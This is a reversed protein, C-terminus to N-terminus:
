LMGRSLPEVTRVANWAIDCWLTTTRSSNGERVKGPIMEITKSKCRKDWTAWANGSDEQLDPETERQAYYADRFPFIIADACEEWLGSDRLDGIQPRKNDRRETERSLQILALIPINLDDALEQVGIAIETQDTYRGASRGEPRLLGVHDIILLGPRINQREWQMFQRRAISRAQSVRLGSRKIVQLPLARYVERVQALMARQEETIHRRRIDQYTPFTDGFMAYGIDAYHRRAIQADTMEGSIALVGAATPLGLNYRRNLAEGTEFAEVDRSEVERWWEPAAVRLAISSAVTSKGMSPRAPLMYLEKPLLPGLTDHLGVLGTHVGDPLSRDADVYDLVADALTAASKPTLKPDYHHLDHLSKEIHQVLESGDVLGAVDDLMPSAALKIMEQGLRAVARRTALDQIVRAYEAVNASPPAHEVLDAFYRMGGLEKFAKDARFEEAITIPEALHGHKIADAISDFLRGHFPEYFSQATLSAGIDHFATNEYLLIGILAQEAEINATAAPAEPTDRM